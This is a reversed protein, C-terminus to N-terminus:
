RLRSLDIEPYVAHALDPGHRRQVLLATTTREDLDPYKRRIAARQVTDMQAQFESWNQSRQEPTLGRIAAMQIKWAEISTDTPIGAPLAASRIDTVIRTYPQGTVSPRHM